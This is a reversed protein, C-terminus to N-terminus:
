QATVPVGMKYLAQQAVYRAAPNSARALKQLIPKTEAIGMNGLVVAAWRQDASNQAAKEILPLVPAGIESLAVSCYYATLLNGGFGKILIPAAPLGIRGLSQAATLAVTGNPDKLASMLAPIAAANNPQGLARAAAERVDKVPDKLATELSGNLSPSGIAGFIWCIEKRIVPNTSKITQMLDPVAPMGIRALAGQAAIRLKLDFDDLARILTTIAIPTGIRGLGTAAEIRAENDANPDNIAQILTAQGAINGIFAIAEIAVRRVQPTDTQSLTILEPIAAPNKTKGLASAAGSRVDPDSDKLLASLQALTDPRPGFSGLVDGASSRAGATSKIQAVVQSILNPQPGIAEMAKVTGRQVNIDGDGLGGALQSINSDSKDGIAILAQVARDHVTKSIDKLMALLQKIADANGLLQLAGVAKLRVHVSDGTIADAFQESALLEKAAAIRQAPTGSVMDNVMAQIHRTHNIALGVVFIVVLAFIGYNILKRRDM